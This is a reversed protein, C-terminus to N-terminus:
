APLEPNARSDDLIADVYDLHYWMEQKTEGTEEVYPEALRVLVQDEQVELVVGPVETGNRRALVSDGVQISEAAM